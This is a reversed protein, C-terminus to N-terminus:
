DHSYCHRDIFLFDVLNEMFLLILLRKTVVVYINVYVLKLKKVAHLPSNVSIVNVCKKQSVSKTRTGALCVLLRQEM